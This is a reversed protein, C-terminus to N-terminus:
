MRGPRGQGADAVHGVAPRRRASREVARRGAM